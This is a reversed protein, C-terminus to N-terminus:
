GAVMPTSSPLTRTPRVRSWSSRSAVASRGALSLALLRAAPTVEPRGPEVVTAAVIRTATAQPMSVKAVPPIPPTWRSAAAM